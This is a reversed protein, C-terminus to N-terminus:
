QPSCSIKCDMSRMEREIELADRICAERTQQSLDPDQSCTMYGQYESCLAECKAHHTMDPNAMIRHIKESVPIQVAM